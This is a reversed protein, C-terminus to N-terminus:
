ETQLPVFHGDVMYARQKPDSKNRYVKYTKGGIIVSAANPDIKTPAVPTSETPSQLISQAQKRLNDVNSLRKTYGSEDGNAKAVSALKEENDAMRTLSDAIHTPAMGSKSQLYNQIMSATVEDGSAVAKAYAGVNKELESPANAKTQANSTSAGAKITSADLLGEERIKAINEKTQNGSIAMQQMASMRTSLMDNANNLTAIKMQDQTTQTALHQYNKFEKAYEPLNAIPAYKGLWQTNARARENIDPILQNDDFARRAENIIPLYRTRLNQVAKFEELQNLAVAGDAQQKAQIVPLALDFMVKQRQAQQDELTMRQAREMLSTGAEQGQNFAM